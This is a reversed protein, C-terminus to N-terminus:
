LNVCQKSQNLHVLRNRHLYYIDIGMETLGLETNFYLDIYEPHITAAYLVTYTSYPILSTPPLCKDIYDLSKLPLTERFSLGLNSYMM